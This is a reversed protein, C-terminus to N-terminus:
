YQYHLSFYNINLFKMKKLKELAGLIAEVDFLTLHNVVISDLGGIDVYFISFDLLYERSMIPM